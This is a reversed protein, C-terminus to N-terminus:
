KAARARASSPGLLTLARPTRLIMLLPGLKVGTAGYCNQTAIAGASDPSASKWNGYLRCPIEPFWFWVPCRKLWRSVPSRPRRAPICSNLLSFPLPNISSFFQAPQVRECHGRNLFGKNRHARDFVISLLWSGTATQSCPAAARTLLANM